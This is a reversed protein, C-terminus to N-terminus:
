FRHKWFEYCYTCVGSTNDEACMEGIGGMVLDDVLRQKEDCSGGEQFPTWIRIAKDLWSFSCEYDVSNIMNNLWVFRKQYKNCPAQVLLWGLAETAKSQNLILFISRVINQYEDDELLAYIIDRILPHCAMSPDTNFLRTLTRVVSEYKGVAFAELTHMLLYKTDHQYNRRVKFLYGRSEDFMGKVCLAAGKKVDEDNMLPDDPDLQCVSRAYELLQVKSITFGESSYQSPNNKNSSEALAKDSEYLEQIQRQQWFIGIVAAVVLVILIIRSFSSASTNAHGALSGTTKGGSASTNGDKIAAQLKVISDLSLLQSNSVRKKAPTLEREVAALKDVISPTGFNKVNKLADLLERASQFRSSPTKKLLRQIIEDLEGACEIDRTLHPPDLVLHENLLIVYNASNFPPHGEILEFLICGCAYLDSRLDVPEGMVQEPSLYQPTGFVQGNRTLTGAHDDPQEYHAVGFDILKVFDDRDGCSKLMINDPKLDRHVIGSNHACELACLLDTIIRFVSDLPLAGERAIRARLTEGSVYEMVIFFDGDDNTDFDIVQCIHPHDLKAAASAERRFRVLADPHEAIQVHMVKLAYDKHLSLHEVIYVEGMSGTGIRNKVIYKENIIDGPSYSM